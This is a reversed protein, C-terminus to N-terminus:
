ALERARDVPAQAPADLAQQIWRKVFRSSQKEQMQERLRGAVERLPVPGAPRIKECLLVHLGVPSEIVESVQGERMGFLVADLEPYLNDRQVEGLLGGQLSTPCESHKSAQESFRAPNKLVRRRIQEIRRGAEERTNEVFEPNVTVLIHRAVRTEPRRFRDRNMYYFLNVETDEVQPARAGVKALVAEVRLERELALRLERVGLGNSQLEAQFAEDDGYRARIQEVAHDLQSEPIVIDAAEPASLVAQEILYERAAINRVEVYQAEELAAPPREFRETAIRLLRYNVSARQPESNLEPM